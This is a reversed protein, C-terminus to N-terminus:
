EAEQHIVFAKFEKRSIVLYFRNWDEIIEGNIFYNVKKVTAYVFFGNEELRKLLKTLKFGDEAREPAEMERGFNGYLDVLNLFEMILALEIEDEPEDQHSAMDHAQSAIGLLDSGKYVRPVWVESQTPQSHNTGKPAQQARIKKEHRLKLKRLGEATYSNPQDDVIKHHVKCLLILNEYEDLKETPFTPDARPGGPSQAVIHCEDGVISMLDGSVILDCGCIACKNGAFAWLAKRTKGSIAM